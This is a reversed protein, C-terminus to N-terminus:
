PDRPTRRFQEVLREYERSLQVPALDPTVHVEFWQMYELSRIDLHRMYAGELAEIRQLMDKQEKRQGYAKM